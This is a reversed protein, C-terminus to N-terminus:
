FDTGMWEALSQFSRDGIVVHDIIPIGLIRGVERMRLTLEGDERSPTPDGSPHNHVLVGGAAAMRVLPRFV